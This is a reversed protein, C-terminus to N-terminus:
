EVGVALWVVLLTAVAAAIVVGMLVLEADVHGRQTRRNAASM